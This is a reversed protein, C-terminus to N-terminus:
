LLTKGLLILAAWALPWTALLGIATYHTWDPKSPVVEEHPKSPRFARIALAALIPFLGFVGADLLRANHMRMPVVLATMGLWYFGIVLWALEAWSHERRVPPRDGPERRHRYLLIPGSMALGLWVYVVGGVM